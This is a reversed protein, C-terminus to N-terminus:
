TRGSYSSTAVDQFDYSRNENLRQNLLDYGYRKRWDNIQAPSAARIVSATIESPLVPNLSQRRRDAEERLVRKLDEKSMSAFHKRLRIQEAQQRLEDISARELKNRQQDQVGSNHSYDRVIIEVMQSREQQELHASHEAAIGANFALQNRLVSVAQEVSQYNQEMQQVLMQRNALCDYGPNQEMFQDLAQAPTERLVALRNRLQPDDLWLELQRDSILERGGCQDAWDLIVSDNARVDYLPYKQYFGRFSKYIRSSEARDMKM